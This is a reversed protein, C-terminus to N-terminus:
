PTAISSDFTPIGHSDTSRSISVVTTLTYPVNGVTATFQQDYSDGLDPPWCAPPTPIWLAYTDGLDNTALNITSSQPPAGGFPDPSPSFNSFSEKFLVTGNEIGNGNQDELGYSIWQYAGCVGTGNPPITGDIEVVTIDTGSTIASKGDNPTETTDVYYLHTPVQVFFNQSNSPQGSATVTVGQNGGASAQNNATFTATIQGSSIVSVNSVSINAGANVTAGAAFGEGYISVNVATGVLGQAPSLSSVTPTVAIPASVYVTCYGDSIWGDIYTGGSGVGNVFLDWADPSEYVSAVDYNESTWGYTYGDQEGGGVLEGSCSNMCLQIDTVEGYPVTQGIPVADNELNLDAGCIMLILDCSFSRAMAAEPNSQLLRGRGADKQPVSWGVQGSWIDAPFAKGNDDKARTRSLDNINIAITQNPQLQYAKSWVLAGAAIRVNFWQPQSSENFLLLTSTTGNEITWPHDGGNAAGGFDKPLREAEHLRSDKSRSVLKTGVDGPSGDSEVLFSDQLMPDGTLGRLAIERSRLM